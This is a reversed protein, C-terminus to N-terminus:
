VNALDLKLKSLLKNYKGVCAFFLKRITITASSFCRCVAFESVISVCKFSSIDNTSKHYTTKVREGRIAAIAAQRDKVFVRLAAISAEVYLGYGRLAMCGYM